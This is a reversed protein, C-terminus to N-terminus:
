KVYIQRAHSNRPLLMFNHTSIIIDDSVILWTALNDRSKDGRKKYAALLYVEDRNVNGFQVYSIKRLFIVYIKGREVHSYPREDIPFFQVPLFDYGSIM